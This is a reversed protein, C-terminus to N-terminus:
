IYHTIEEHHLSVANKQLREVSNASSESKFLRPPRSLYGCWSTSVRIKYWSFYNKVTAYKLKLVISCYAIFYHLLTEDIMPLEYTLFAPAIQYRTLFTLYCQYGTDYTSRTRPALSASWMKALQQNLVVDGRLQQPVTYATSGCSYGSAPVPLFQFRSLADAIDNYVGPVHKSM